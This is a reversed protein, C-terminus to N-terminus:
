RFLGYNFNELLSGWPIELAEDGLKSTTENLDNKSHNMRSIIFSINLSFFSTTIVDINM